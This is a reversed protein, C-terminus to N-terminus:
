ASVESYELVEGKFRELLGDMLKQALEGEKKNFQGYVMGDIRVRCTKEDERYFLWAVGKTDWKRKDVRFMTNFPIKVGTSSLFYDEYLAMKRRMTRILFFLTVAILLLCVVAAIFQQRIDGEEMPHDEPSINWKHEASYKKWLVNVGNQGGKDKLLAYNNVLIPPLSMARNTNLPLVDKANEPFFFPQTSAYEKWVAENLGGSAEMESFTEGAKVFTKHSYYALNKERYGWLGDKLFLLGFIGLMVLMALARWLFWRTMRCVVVPSSCSLNTESMALDCCASDKSFLSAFLVKEMNKKLFLSKPLSLVRM